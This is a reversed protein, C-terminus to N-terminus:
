LDVVEYSSWHAFEAKRISGEPSVFWTDISMPKSLIWGGSESHFTDADSYDYRSQILVVAELACRRSM